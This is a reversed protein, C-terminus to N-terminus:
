RLSVETVSRLATFSDRRVIDFAPSESRGLTRTRRGVAAVVHGARVFVRDLANSCCGGRDTEALPGSAGLGEAECDWTWAALACTELTM